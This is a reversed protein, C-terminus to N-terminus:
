LFQIAMPAYQVAKGAIKEEVVGGKEITTKAVSYSQYLVHIMIVAILLIIGVSLILWNYWYSNRTVIYYLLPIIILLVALIIFFIIIYNTNM